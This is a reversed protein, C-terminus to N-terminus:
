SRAEWLTALERVLDDRTLVGPPLAIGRRALGDAIAAATPLALGLEALAEHQAFVEGPAGQLAVQGQHLALVRDAAVIDDMFHTIAIVTLGQAHLRQLLGLVDQRAHPDLLATSEDLVLCSPQMALIGAIALRAKLGASLTRPNRSRLETLNTDALAQEVRCLLQDHPVGLNEPGFAVEEDVVTAVFQNDPNQFVMGIAARIDMTSREDRTNLGNVWVNGETPTQLGNLCRALTSKGSGNHGVIALYEGRAVTLDVGRLAAVPPAGEPTYTVHLNEVRIMADTM